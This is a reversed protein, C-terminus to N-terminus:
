EAFRVVACVEGDFIAIPAVNPTLLGNLLRTAHACGDPSLGTTNGNDDSAAVVIAGHIVAGNVHRNPPLDLLLGEDNIWLDLGDCRVMDVYGGVAGQLCKLGSGIEAERAPEGPNAIVVRLMKPEANDQEGM